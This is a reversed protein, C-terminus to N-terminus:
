FLFLASVTFFKAIFHGGTAEADLYKRMVGINFLMLIVPVICAIVILAIDVM